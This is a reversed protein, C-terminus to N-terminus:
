CGTTSRSRSRPATPDVGLVRYHDASHALLVQEIFFQAAQQPEGSVAGSLASEADALPSGAAVKLLATVGPPLRRRGYLLEPFQSPARAFALALAIGESDAAAPDSSM